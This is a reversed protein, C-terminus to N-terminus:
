KTSIDGQMLHTLVRSFHVEESNSSLADCAIPDFLRFIMGLFVQFALLRHFAVLWRGM